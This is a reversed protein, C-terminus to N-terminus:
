RLKRFVVNVMYGVDPYGTGIDEFKYQGDGADWEKQWGKDFSVNHYPDNYHEKKYYWFAGVIIEKEEFKITNGDTSIRLQPGEDNYPVWGGNPVFHLSEIWLTIGTSYDKYCSGWYLRVPNLIYRNQNENMELSQDQECCVTDGQIAFVTWANPYEKFIGKMSMENGKRLVEVNRSISQYEQPIDDRPSVMVHYDDYTMRWIERVEASDPDENCGTVSALVIIM